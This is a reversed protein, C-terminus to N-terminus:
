SGHNRYLDVKITSKLFICYMYLLYVCVDIFVYVYIYIFVHACVRVYKCLLNCAHMGALMFANMAICDHLM